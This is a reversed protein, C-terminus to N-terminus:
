RNRGGAVDKGTVRQVDHPTDNVRKSGVHANHITHCASNAGFRQLHRASHGELYRATLEMPSESTSTTTAIM